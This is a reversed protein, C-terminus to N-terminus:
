LIGGLAAQAPKRGKVRWGCAALRDGMTRATLGANRRVDGWTDDIARATERSLGADALAHYAHVNSTRVTLSGDSRAEIAVEPVLVAGLAGCTPCAGGISAKWYGACCTLYHAGAPSPLAASRACAREAEVDALRREADRCHRAHDARLHECRCLARLGDGERVDRSYWVADAYLAHTYRVLVSDGPLADLIEWTATVGCVTSSGAMPATM